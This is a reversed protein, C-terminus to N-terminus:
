YTRIAKYRNLTLNPETGGIFPLANKKLLKSKLFHARTIRKSPHMSLVKHKISASFEPKPKM